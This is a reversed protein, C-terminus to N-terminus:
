VLLERLPIRSRQQIHAKKAEYNAILIASLVPEGFEIAWIGTGTGIDMVNLPAHVPALGLKGDTMM